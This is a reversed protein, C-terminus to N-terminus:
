SNHQSLLREYLKLHREGVSKINWHKEGFENNKRGRETYDSALTSDIATAAEAVSYPSFVANGSLKLWQGINGTDPGAVAKGFAFALPIIGSNLAHNRQNFVVDAAHFYYQVDDVSLSSRNTGFKGIRSYRFRIEDWKRRLFRSIRSKEPYQDFYWRPVLLKKHPTKVARFVDMVFAAEAKNRVSGFVQIVKDKESFGLKRRAESRNTNDPYSSYMQHPIIENVQNAPTSPRSMHEALSADGLHIVADAMDYFIDYLFGNFEDGKKITDHPAANHRTIVVPCIAKWRLLMERVGHLEMIIHDNNVITQKNELISIVVEPWQIHLIDFKRYGPLWFLEPSFTVEAGRSELDRYIEASYPNIGRTSQAVLINM